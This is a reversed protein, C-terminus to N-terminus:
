PVRDLNQANGDGAKRNFWRSSEPLFLLATGGVIACVTLIGIVTPAPFRRLSTVLDPVSQVCIPVFAIAYIFRAWNRCKGILFLVTAIGGWAVFVWIDLKERYFYVNVLKHAIDAIFALWLLGLGFKVLEPKEEERRVGLQKYCASCVKYPESPEDCREIVEEVENGCADCKM